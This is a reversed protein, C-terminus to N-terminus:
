YGHQHGEYTSIVEISTMLHCIRLLALHKLQDLEQTIPLQDVWFILHHTMQSPQTMYIFSMSTDNM